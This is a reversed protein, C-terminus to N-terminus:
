RSSTEIEKMEKEFCAPCLGHSFKAETHDSVYKEVQNWYGKDDRVKKCYSCIPVIGRLTMIESLAKQLEQIMDELEATRRAVEKELGENARRLSDETNIRQQLIWLLLIFMVMVGITGLFGGLWYNVKRQYLDSLAETESISMTVILPYDPM